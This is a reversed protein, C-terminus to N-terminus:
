FGFNEIEDIYDKACDLKDIELLMCFGSLSIFKQTTNDSISFGNCTNNFRVWYHMKGKKVHYCQMKSFEM